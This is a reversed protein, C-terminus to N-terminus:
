ECICHWPPIGTRYCTRNPLPGLVGWPPFNEFNRTNNPFVHQLHQSSQVKILENVDEIKHTPHGCEPFQSLATLTSFIDHPVILHQQNTRLNQEVM